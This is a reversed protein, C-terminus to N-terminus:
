KSVKTLNDNTLTLSLAPFLQNTTALSFKPDINQRYDDLLRSLMERDKVLTQRSSAADDDEQVVHNEGSSFLRILRQQFEHELANSASSNRKYKILRSLLYNKLLNENTDLFHVFHKMSYALSQSPRDNEISRHHLKEIKMM